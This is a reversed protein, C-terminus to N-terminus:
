VHKQFMWAETKMTPITEGNIYPELYISSNTKNEGEIFLVIADHSFRISHIEDAKMGYWGGTEFVEDTAKYRSVGSHETSYEGPKGLYTMTSVTYEDGSDDLSYLTNCVEGQLVLCQFDFRHSHPTIDGLTRRNNIFLRTTSGLLLSDLGALIYNSLRSHSLSLLAEKDFNNM